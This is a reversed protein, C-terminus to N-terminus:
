AAEPQERTASTRELALPRRQPIAPDPGFEGSITSAIERKRSNKDGVAVPVGVMSGNSPGASGDYNKLAESRDSFRTCCSGPTRAANGIRCYAIIDSDWNLGRAATYSM